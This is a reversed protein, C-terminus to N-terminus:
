DNEHAKQNLAILSLPLIVELSVEQKVQPCKGEYLDPYYGDFEVYEERTFKMVVFYSGIEWTGYYHHDQRDSSENNVTLVVKSDPTFVYENWSNPGTRITLHNEKLKMGKKFAATFANRTRQDMIAAVDEDRFMYDLHPYGAEIAKLVYSFAEEKRGLLSCCCGANYLAYYYVSYEKRAEELSKDKYPLYNNLEFAEIERRYEKLAGAYDKASYFAEAKQSCEEIFGDYESRDKYYVAQEKSCSFVALVFASLLFVMLGSSLKKISMCKGRKFLRGREEKINKKRKM